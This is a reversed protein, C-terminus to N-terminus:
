ATRRTSINWWLILGATVRNRPLSNPQRFASLILLAQIAIASSLRCPIQAVLLVM